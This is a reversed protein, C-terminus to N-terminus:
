NLLRETEQSTKAVVAQSTNWRKNILKVIFIIFVPILVTGIGTLFITWFGKLVCDGCGPPSDSGWSIMQVGKNYGLYKISACLGDYAILKIHHPGDNIGVSYDFPTTTPVHTFNCNFAVASFAKSFFLGSNLCLFFWMWLGCGILTYFVPMRQLKLDDLVLVHMLCNWVFLSFLLVIPAFVSFSVFFGFLTGFGDINSAKYGKDDFLVSSCSTWPFNEDCVSDSFLQMSVFNSFPVSYLYVIGAFLLFIIMAVLLRVVAMGTNKSFICKLINCDQGGCFFQACTKGMTSM